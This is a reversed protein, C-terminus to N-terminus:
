SPPNRRRHSRLYALGLIGLAIGSPPIWIWWGRGSDLLRDHLLVAAVWLAGWVAMGVFITLRDNTALPEPDPRRDHSRLYLRV